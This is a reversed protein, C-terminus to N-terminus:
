APSPLGVQTVIFIVDDQFLISLAANNALRQLARRTKQTLICVKTYELYRLEIIRFVVFVAFFVSLM